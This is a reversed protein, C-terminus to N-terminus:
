LTAVHEIEIKRRLQNPQMMPETDLCTKRHYEVCVARPGCQMSRCAYLGNGIKKLNSVHTIYLRLESVIGDSDRGTLCM